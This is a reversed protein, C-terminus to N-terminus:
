FRTWAGGRAGNGGTADANAQFFSADGSDLPWSCALALVGPAALAFIGQGAGFGMVLARYMAPFYGCDPRTGHRGRRCDGSTRSVERRPCFRRSNICPRVGEGGEPTHMTQLRARIM